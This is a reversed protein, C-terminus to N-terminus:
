SCSWSQTLSPVAFAPRWLASQCTPVARGGQDGTTSTLPTTLLTTLPTILLSAWASANGGHKLLIADDAGLSLQALASVCETNDFATNVQFSM